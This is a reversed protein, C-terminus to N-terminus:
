IKTTQFLYRNEPYVTPRHDDDSSDSEIDEKDLARLRNANKYSSQYYYESKPPLLKYSKNKFTRGLSDLSSPIENVDPQSSMDVSQRSFAIDSGSKQLARQSRM